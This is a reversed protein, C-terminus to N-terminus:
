PAAAEACTQLLRLPRDCTGGRLQTLLEGRRRLARRLRARAGAIHRELEELEGALGHAAPPQGNSCLWAPDETPGPEEADTDGTPAAAAVAPELLFRVRRERVVARRVRTWGGPGAPAVPTDGQEEPGRFVSCPHPQLLTGRSFPLWAEGVARSQGRTLTGSSARTTPPTSWATWGEPFPCPPPPRLPQGSPPQRLQRPSLSEPAGCRPQPEQADPREMNLARHIRQSGFPPQAPDPRTLLSGTGAPWWGGRVQSTHLWYQLRNARRICPLALHYCIHEGLSSLLASGLGLCLLVFLGSFHYIGMQLTQPLHFVPTLM